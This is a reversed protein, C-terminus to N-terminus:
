DKYKRGEVCKKTWCADIDKHPNENWFDEGKSGLRKGERINRQQSVIVFSADAIKGGNFVLSSDEMCDRFM